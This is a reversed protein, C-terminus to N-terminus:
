KVERLKVKRRQLHPIIYVTESYPLLFYSWIFHGYYLLLYFNMANNNMINNQGYFSKSLLLLKDVHIAEFVRGCGNLM